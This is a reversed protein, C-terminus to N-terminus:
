EQINKFTGLSPMVQRATKVLKLTGRSIVCPRETWKFTFYLFFFLFFPWILCPPLVEGSLFIFRSGSMIAPVVERLLAERERGMGLGRVVGGAMVDGGMGDGSLVPWMRFAASVLGDSTLGKQQEQVHTIYIRNAVECLQGTYQIKRFTDIEVDTNEIKEEYWM